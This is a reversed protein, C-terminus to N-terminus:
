LDGILEMTDKLNDYIRLYMNYYKDYIEHNKMDPEHTRTIKITRDVAEKFSKYCGTGVGALIAAGLTTATDSTPVKIRKGTIDAKIQTWLISNAAGGMSVLEDVKVGIEEATKLNHYLAYSCGELVSRIMHARTKSYSLGFFVGKAHKDWIPSREGAMYPLFILGESGAQIANAGDDMIKFVSEGTKKGLEDEFSGLEEKFWKVCGSGGVTGGQLLWLDPIVHFSLILKPHALAEDLCISMGGAQGGQEQTQGVEAVGAGLTGCCADLGGAVVPIGKILGTAQAAIDTLEGAIAHCAYIEPLKERCIGLEECLSDDWKGTKMNFSHVGYGQSVDQTVAGTLKYVIYSNSQLFKYTKAYIEPKNEKFWLIKPSSYTPEFSNGSVDFIRNFGVKEVVRRSIESSRTDMWIPTNHLVNGVKDIPIASWSQGDVGIGAVNAPSIKGSIITEKIAVCVAEWWENPDQEVYDPLPYYVKYGKTSQAVVRGDMDFAAVKCASTGIDIGLLIKM